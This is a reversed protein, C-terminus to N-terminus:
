KTNSACYCWFPPESLIRLSSEKPLGLAYFRSTTNLFSFRPKAQNSEANAMLFGVPLIIRFQFRGHVVYTVLSLRM